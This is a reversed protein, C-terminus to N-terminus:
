LKALKRVALIRATVVFHAGTEATTKYERALTDVM